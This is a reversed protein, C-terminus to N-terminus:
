ILAEGTIDIGLKSSNNINVMKYRVGEWEIYTQKTIIPKLNYRLRGTITQKQHTGIYDYLAAIYSATIIDSTYVMSNTISMDIVTSANELGKLTMDNGYRIDAGNFVSSFAPPTEIVPYTVWDKNEIDVSPYIKTDDFMEYYFEDNEIYLIGCTVECIKELIEMYSLKDTTVSFTIGLTEQISLASSYSHSNFILGALELIEKIIDAPYADDIVYAYDTSQIYSNFLVSTESKCSLVLERLSYEINDIFGNFVTQSNETIIVPIEHVNRTSFFTKFSAPLTLTINENMLTDQVQGWEPLNHDINPIDKISDTFDYGDITISLSM